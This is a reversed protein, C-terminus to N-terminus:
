EWPMCRRGPTAVLQAKWRSVREQDVPNRWGERLSKGLDADPQQERESYWGRIVRGAGEEQRRASPVGFAPRPTRPGHGLSKGVALADDHTAKFDDLRQDVIKSPLQPPKGIPRSYVSTAGKVRM